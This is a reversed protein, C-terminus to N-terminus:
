NACNLDGRTQQQWLQHVCAHNIVLGYIVGCLFARRVATTTVCRSHRLSTVQLWHRMYCARRFSFYRVRFDNVITAATLSWLVCCWVSALECSTKRWWEAAATTAAPQPPQASIVSVWCFQKDVFTWIRRCNPRQHSHRRNIRNRGPRLARQILTSCALSLCGCRSQFRSQRRGLSSPTAASSTCLQWAVSRRTTSSQWPGVLRPSPATCRTGAETTVVDQSVLETERYM